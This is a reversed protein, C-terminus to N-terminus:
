FKKFKPYRAKHHFFARFAKDLRRLIDQACQSHLERLLPNTSREGTLTLCQQTFSTSLRLEEWRQKRHTLADNWLIRSAEVMRTLSRIQKSSPYLRFKFATVIDAM